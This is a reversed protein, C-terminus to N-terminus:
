SRAIRRRLQDLSMITAGIGILVPILLARVLAAASMGDIILARLGEVMHSVPNVDAIRRYVGTM